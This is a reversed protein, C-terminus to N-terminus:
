PAPRIALFDLADGIPVFYSIGTPIDRGVPRYVQDAIAVVAGKEDLLPGGSNGFTVSVDSQLMSMGDELRYASVIGKTVTGANKPDLPAGIAYVPDGPNLRAGHLILPQRSHSTPVKILAVDRRKDQRLVEGETEFGDSWRVRVTKAEGVVHRATLLYGDTSILFGTGHGDASFITVVSGVADAISVKSERALAILLTTRDAPSSRTETESEPSRTAALFEPKTLLTDANKRFGDIVMSSLNDEFHKQEGTATTEIRALLERRVPDYIQWEVTMDATGRYVQPGKFPGICVKAQLDKILAGIELGGAVAEREFLNDSLGGKLGAKAVQEQFVEALRRADFKPAGSPWTPPANFTIACVLPTGRASIWGQGEKLGYAAKALSLPRTSTTIEAAHATSDAVILCILGLGLTTRKM